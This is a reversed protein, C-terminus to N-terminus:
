FKSDVTDFAARVAKEIKSFDFEEIKGNRKKITKM